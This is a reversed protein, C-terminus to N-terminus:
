PEDRAFDIMHNVRGGACADDPEPQQSCAIDYGKQAITCCLAAGSAHGPAFRPSGATVVLGLRAGASDFAGVRKARGLAPAIQALKQVQAEVLILLLAHDEVSQKDVNGAALAAAVEILQETLRPGESAASARTSAPHEGALV